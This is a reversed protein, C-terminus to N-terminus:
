PAPTGSVAPAAAVPTAAQRSYRTYSYYDNVAAERSGNLLAGLLKSQELAELGRKLQRKETKGPRAVMLVGDALRMWVSTDALPLIPPSDIVIWEFWSSLRDMIATLKASQMLELPNGAVTGAPLIWVGLDDLQYLNMTPNSEAELLETLGPQPAMGFREALSPRRLDGELLLVRQGKRALTCALNAAVTSKGEQAMSSTILVRKLSRRQQLHRLRVGLFRFKEAALGDPDTVCVLTNQPVVEMRVSQFQQPAVPAAAERGDRSAAAQTVQREVIELLNAADELQLSGSGARDTESRQLASFIQSM